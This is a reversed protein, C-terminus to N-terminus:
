SHRRRRKAPRDDDVSPQDAAACDLAAFGSWEVGDVRGEREDPLASTAWEGMVRGVLPDARRLGHDGGVVWVIWCAAAMQEIAARLDAEPCMTDRTGIVFLVSCTAPLHVLADLRAPDAKPGVLPYSQLILRTNPSRQAYALAAVRAGMSRGVLLSERDPSAAQDLLLLLHKLRSKLNANGTWRLVPFHERLGAATVDMISAGLGGGAGHTFVALLDRRACSADLRAAVEKGDLDLTMPEDLDGIQALVEDVTM